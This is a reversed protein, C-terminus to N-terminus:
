PDYWLWLELRSTSGGQQSGQRKLLTSACLGLFSDAGTQAALLSLETLPAVRWLLLIGPDAM